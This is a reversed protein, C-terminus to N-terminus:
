RPTQLTTWRTVTGSAFAPQAVNLGSSRYNGHPAANANVTAATDQAPLQASASIAVISNGRDRHPGRNPQSAWAVSM